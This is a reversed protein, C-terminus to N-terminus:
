TILVNILDSPSFPSPSLKCLVFVVLDDPLDDIFDLKTTATSRRFSRLKKRQLTAAEM